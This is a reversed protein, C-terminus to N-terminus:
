NTAQLLFTDYLALLPGDSRRMPQCRCELRSLQSTVVPVNRLRAEIRVRAAADGEVFRIIVNADLYIM